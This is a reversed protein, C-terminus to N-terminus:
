LYAHHRSTRWQLINIALLLIFSIVLMM